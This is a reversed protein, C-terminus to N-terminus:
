GILPCSDKYLNYLYVYVKDSHSDPFSSVSPFVWIAPTCEGKKVLDEEATWAKVIVLVDMDHGQLYDHITIIRNDTSCTNRLHVDLYKKGDTNVQVINSLNVGHHYSSDNCPKYNSKSRNTQVTAVSGHSLWWKGLILGHTRNQTNSHGLQRQNAEAVYNCQRIHVTDIIYFRQKKYLAIYMGFIIM